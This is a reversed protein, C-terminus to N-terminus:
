RRNRIEQIISGLGYLLGGGVIAPVATTFLYTIKVVTDATSIEDYGAAAAFSGVVIVIM